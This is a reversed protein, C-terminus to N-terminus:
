TKPLLLVKASKICSYQLKENKKRTELEDHLESTRKKVQNRLQWNWFILFFGILALPIFCLPQIRFNEM